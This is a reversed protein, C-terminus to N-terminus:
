AMSNILLENAIHDSRESLYEQKHPLKFRWKAGGVMFANVISLIDQSSCTNLELCVGTSSTLKLISNKGFNGQVQLSPVDVMPLEKIIIPRSKIFQKLQQKKQHKLTKNKAM